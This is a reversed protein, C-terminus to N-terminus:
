TTDSGAAAARQDGSRKPLITHNRCRLLWAKWFEKIEEIIDPLYLYKSGLWM